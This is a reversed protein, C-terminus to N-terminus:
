AWFTLGWKRYRCYVLRKIDRDTNWCQWRMVLSNVKCVARLLFRQLWFHACVPCRANFKSGKWVKLQNFDNLWCTWVVLTSLNYSKLGQFGCKTLLIHAIYSDLLDHACMFQNKFQIRVCLLTALDYHARSRWFTRGSSGGPAWLLNLLRSAACWLKSSQLCHRSTSHM